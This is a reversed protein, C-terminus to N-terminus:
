PTADRRTRGAAEVLLAADGEDTLAARARREARVSAERLVEAHEPGAISLLAAIVRQLRLGVEVHAAGDRAIPRLADEILDQFPVAPVHVRAFRDDAREPKTTLAVTLVREISTLAEIATGPDNVSSSMARSGIEALAVLGLRPDQEYTRHREVLFARRIAQRAQIDPGGEVLALADGLAIPAGPLARVHVRLGDQEAQRALTDVDVATVCGASEAVIRLAGAPVDVPASGGLHPRRANARVTESAADEVRDLVDHLRGFHVLHQIWRLLTVVVISIVVLTGVYLVFRGQEGYYETSLAAIGVISFVFTGLFSSLANQSTRDEVLLQIARPTTAAAASAYASIMATLSFTTVALMSTALIELITQVSGQGLDAPVGEPVLTGSIGAVLALAVAAASFAALRFGIRRTLRALTLRWGGESM